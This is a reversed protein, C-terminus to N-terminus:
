ASKDGSLLYLAIWTPVLFIPIVIVWFDFIATEGYAPIGLVYPAIVEYFISWLVYSYFIATYVKRTFCMKSYAICFLCVVVLPSFILIDIYDLIHVASSEIIVFPILLSLLVHIWFFIKWFVNPKKVGNGADLCSEPTKYVEM